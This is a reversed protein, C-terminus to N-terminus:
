SKTIFLGPLTQETSFCSVPYSFFLPVAVRGLVQSFLESVIYYVPMNATSGLEVGQVIMTSSYNHIFIVGVILPFRLFDIVRSLLEDGTQRQSNM